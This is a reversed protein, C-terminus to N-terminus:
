IYIDLNKLVCKILCLCQIPLFHLFLRPMIQLYGQFCRSALFLLSFREHKWFVTCIEQERQREWVREAFYVKLILKELQNDRVLFLCNSLHGARDEMPKDCITPAQRVLDLEQRCLPFAPLALCNLNFM